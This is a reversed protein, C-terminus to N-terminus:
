EERRSPHWNGTANNLIHKQSDRELAHHRVSYLRTFGGMYKETFAPSLDFIVHETPMISLFSLNDYVTNQPVNPNFLGRRELIGRNRIKKTVVWMMTESIDYIGLILKPKPPKDARIEMDTLNGIAYTFNSLETFTTPKEVGLEFIQKAFTDKEIITNIVKELLDEITTTNNPNKKADEFYNRMMDCASDMFSYHEIRMDPHRFHVGKKILRRLEKVRSDVKEFWDLVLEASVYGDFFTQFLFSYYAGRPLATTIFDVKQTHAALNATGVLRSVIEREYLTFGNRVTLKTINETLKVNRETISVIAGAETIALASDSAFMCPTLKIEVEEFKVKKDRLKANYMSEDLRVFFTHQNSYLVHNKHERMYPNSPISVEILVDGNFSNVLCLDDIKYEHMIGQAQLEEFAKVNKKLDSNKIAIKGESDHMKHVQYTRGGINITDGAKVEVPTVILDDLIDTTALNESIKVFTPDTNLAM